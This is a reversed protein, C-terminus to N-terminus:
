AMHVFSWAPRRRASSLRWRSQEPHPLHTVAFYLIDQLGGRDEDAFPRRTRTEPLPGEVDYTVTRALETDRSPPVKRDLGPYVRSQIAFGKEFFATTM